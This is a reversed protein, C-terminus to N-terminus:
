LALSVCRPVAELNTWSWGEERAKRALTDACKNAERPILNLSWLMNKEFRNRCSVLKSEMQAGSGPGQMVLKWLVACDVEFIVKRLNTEEAIEMARDLAWLEAQFTSAMIAITRAETFCVDGKDDQCCIGIGAEKTEIDWAGDINMKVFGRKPTLWQLGESLDTVVLKQVSNYLRWGKQYITRAAVEPNQGEKGKLVQNRNYWIQRAGQLIISLELAENCIGRRALNMTSPLYDHLLRWAFIKVKPQVNLKWIVKWFYNIKRKDAQEGIQDVESICILDDIGKSKFEGAKEIFEPVHKLGNVDGSKKAWVAIPVALLLSFISLKVSSISSMAM